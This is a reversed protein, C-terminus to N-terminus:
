SATLITKAFEAPDISAPDTITYKSPGHPIGRETYITSQSSEQRKVKPNLSVNRTSKVVCLYGRAFPSLVAIRM